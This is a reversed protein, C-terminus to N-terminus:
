DVGWLMKLSVPIAHGKSLAFYVISSCHALVTQTFHTKRSTYAFTGKQHSAHQTLHALRRYCLSVCLAWLLLPLCRVATGTTYFHNFPRFPSPLVAKHCDWYPHTTWGGLVTLWSKTAPWLFAQIEPAPSSNSQFIFGLPPYMLLTMVGFLLFYCLELEMHM